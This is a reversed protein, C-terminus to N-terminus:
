LGFKQILKAVAPKQVPPVMQYLIIHSARDSVFARVGPAKATTGVERVPTNRDSGMPMRSPFPEVKKPYAPPATAPRMIVRQAARVGYEGQKMNMPPTSFSGGPVYSFPATM